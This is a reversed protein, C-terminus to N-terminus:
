LLPESIFDSNIIILIIIIILTSLTRCCHNQFSIVIEYVETYKSRVTLRISKLALKNDIKKASCVYVGGDKLEANQIHLESVLKQETWEIVHIRNLQDKEFERGEFRWSPMGKFYGVSAECRLVFSTGKNRIVEPGPKM